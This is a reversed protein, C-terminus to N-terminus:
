LAGQERAARVIRSRIAAAMRECTEADSQRCEAVVARGADAARDRALARAVRLVDVVQACAENEARAGREESESREKRIAAAIRQEVTARDSYLWDCGQMIERARDEPSM